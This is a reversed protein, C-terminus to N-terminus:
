RLSALVIDVSEGALISVPAAVSGGAALFWM